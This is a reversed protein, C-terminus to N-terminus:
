QSLDSLPPEELHIKILDHECDPVDDKLLGCVTKMMNFLDKRKINEQEDKGLLELGKLEEKVQAIDLNMLKALFQLYEKPNEEIYQLTKFWIQQLKQKKHARSHKIMLLDMIQYPIQSSDFIVHLEKNLLLETSVPPFTVYADITKDKFRKEADVQDINLSKYEPTIGQINHALNIFLHGLTAWEYGVNKGKLDAIDRISKRAIIVDAGNSYDMFVAFDIPEEILSNARVLEMSTLAFADVHDKINARSFDALTLTEMVRLEVGLEASFEKEIAFYLPYYGVWPTISVTIVERRNDSNQLCGSLSIVLVWICLLKFLFGM